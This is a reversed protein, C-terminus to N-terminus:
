CRHREGIGALGGADAQLQLGKNLFSGAVKIPLLAKRRRWAWYDALTADDPFAQHRVIPTPRDQELRLPPTLGGTQRDGIGM